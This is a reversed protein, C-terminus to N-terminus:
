KVEGIVVSIVVATRSRHKFPEAPLIKSTRCAPTRAKTSVILRNLIPEIM